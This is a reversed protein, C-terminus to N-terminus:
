AQRRRAGLAQTRLLGYYGGGGGLLLLLIILMLIMRASGKWINGQVRALVRPRSRVTVNTMSPENM